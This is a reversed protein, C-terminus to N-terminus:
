KRCYFAGGTSRDPLLDIVVAVTMHAAMATAKTSSSEGLSVAAAVTTTSVGDPLTSPTSRPVDVQSHVCECVRVDVRVRENVYQGATRQM